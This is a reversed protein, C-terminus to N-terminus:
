LYVFQVCTPWDRLMALGLARGFWQRGQKDPQGLTYGLTALAEGAARDLVYLADGVESDVYVHLPLKLTFRLESPVREALRALERPEFHHAGGRAPATPTPERLLDALLRRQTVLGSHLTDLEFRMWNRFAGEDGHM